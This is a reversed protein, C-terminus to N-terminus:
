KYDITQAYPDVYRPDVNFLRALFVNVDYTRSGKESLSCVSQNCNLNGTAIQENVRKEIAGNNLIFGSYFYKQYDAVSVIKHEHTLGIIYLSISRDLLSPITIHFSYATLFFIISCYIADQWHILLKKAIPISTIFLLAILILGQYFIIKSPFFQRILIYLIIFIIFFILSLLLTKKM